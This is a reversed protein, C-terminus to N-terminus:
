NKIGRRNASSLLMESKQQSNWQLLITGCTKQYQVHRFIVVSFWRERFSYYDPLSVTTKVKLKCSYLRLYWLNQFVISRNHHLAAIERQKEQSLLLSQIPQSIQDACSWLIMVFWTLILQVMQVSESLWTVGGRWRNWKYELENHTSSEIKNLLKWFLILIELAECLNTSTIRSLAKMKRVRVSYIMLLIKTYKFYAWMAFRTQIKWCIRAADSLWTTTRFNACFHPNKELNKVWM